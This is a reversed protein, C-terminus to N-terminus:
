SSVTQYLDSFFSIQIDMAVNFPVTLGHYDSFIVSFGAPNQTKLPDPPKYVGLRTANQQQTQPNSVSLTVVNSADDFDSEINVRGATDAIVCYSYVLLRLLWQTQMIVAKQHLDHERILERLGFNQSRM